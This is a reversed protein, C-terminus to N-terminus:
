TLTVASLVVKSIQANSKEKKDNTISFCIDSVPEGLKTKLRRCLAKYVLSTQSVHIARQGNQIVKLAM